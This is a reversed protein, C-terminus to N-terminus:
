VFETKPPDRPSNIGNEPFDGKMFKFSITWLHKWTAQGLISNWKETVLLDWCDVLGPNSATLRKQGGYELDYRAWPERADSMCSDLEV